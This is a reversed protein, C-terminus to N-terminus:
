LGERQLPMTSFRKSRRRSGSAISMGIPGCTAFSAAGSRSRCIAGSKMATSACRTSSRMGAQGAEAAQRITKRIKRLLATASASPDSLFDGFPDQPCPPHGRSRLGRRSISVIPGHHGSRTLSAIIDASTLGNGVILVRDGPRIVNLSGPRTFDAVFRPHSALAASLSRPASPSPYTTAIVLFDARTQDDGDDTILWGEPSSSVRTVRAKRHEVAGRELLPRLKAAVYAGFLRRQPFLNGNPWLAEPDDAVSDNDAVWDLFNEPQDPHLSMRAAPVNIRHAPDETDYALGRGIEPRTEFVIIHPPKAATANALHFAVGAGSFGGGIIAVVPRALLDTGNKTVAAPGVSNERVLAQLM